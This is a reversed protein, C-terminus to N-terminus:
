RMSLDLGTESTHLRHRRSADRVAQQLAAGPGSATGLTSPPASSIGTPRAVRWGSCAEDDVSVFRELQEGAVAVKEATVDGLGGTSVQVEQAPKGFGRDLLIKIADIHVKTREESDM